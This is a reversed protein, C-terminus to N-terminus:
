LSSFVTHIQAEEPSTEGFDGYAKVIKFGCTELLSRLQSPEFWHLTQRCEHSREGWQYRHQRHLLQYDPDFSHQTELTAKRGDEAIFEEDPYWKNEPLEKELEAWPLFTTTYLQGSPLLHKAAKKLAAEPDPILQLTFAPIIINQFTRSFDLEDLTGLIFEAAPLKERGLAIMAQSPDIGTVQYGAKLLPTMLRGSGCGVELTSGPAQSLFEKLFPLEAPSGHQEWFLDHLEAELDQYM